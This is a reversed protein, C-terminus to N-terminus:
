TSHIIKMIYYDPIYVFPTLINKLMNTNKAIKTSIINHTASIHMGIM